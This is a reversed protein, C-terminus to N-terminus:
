RVSGHLSESLRPLLAKVAADTRFRGLEAALRRLDHDVTASDIADVSDLLATALGCAQEIQGAAAHALATRMGYRARSRTADPALAKFQRDLISAAEQPRGMEFLCWGAVMEVADPLHTPGLSDTTPAPARARLGRAHDLCRMASTHDGLLAHGQAERRAAQERIEAPLASIQARQALAVTQAGDNRYMTILGERIWAYGALDHNGAAEALAAAQSTWYRADEDKGSEQAIWGTHEAFRATLILLAARSASRAQVALGAMVRTQAILMPLMVDSATLQSMRRMQAFLQGFAELPPAGDAFSARGTLSSAALASGGVLMSRRDMSASLVHPDILAGVLDSVGDREDGDSRHHGSTSKPALAALQGDAGLFADCRQALAPTPNQRGTEIRSLYGKSYHLSQAFRALSLDAALRLRRLEAGFRVLEAM